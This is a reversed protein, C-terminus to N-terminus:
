RGINTLVPRPANEAPSASTSIASLFFRVDAKKNEAVVAIREAKVFEPLEATLTYEGAPVDAFRYNGKKDTTETRRLNSTSSSLTVTTGALAKGKADTVAGDIRGTGGSPKQALALAPVLAALLM